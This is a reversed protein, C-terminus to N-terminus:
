VVVHALNHRVVARAVVDQGSLLNPRICIVRCRTRGTSSMVTASSHGDHKPLPLTCGDISKVSVRKSFSSYM